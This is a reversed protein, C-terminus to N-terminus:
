LNGPVPIAGSLHPTGAAVKRWLPWMQDNESIRRIGGAGMFKAAKPLVMGAVCNVLRSAKKYSLQAILVLSTVILYISSV